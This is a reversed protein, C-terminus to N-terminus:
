VAMRFYDVVPQFTRYDDRKARMSQIESGKALIDFPKRYTPCLSGRYFTCNSLLTDLRVIRQYRQRSGAPPNGSGCWILYQESIHGM